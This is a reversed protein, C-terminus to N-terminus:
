FRSSLISLLLEANLDIVFQSIYKLIFKVFGQICLFPEYLNRHKEPLLVSFQRNMYSRLIFYDIKYAKFCKSTSIQILQKMM